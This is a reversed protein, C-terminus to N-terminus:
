KAPLRIREDLYKNPYCKKLIGDKELLMIFTNGHQITCEKLVKVAYIVQELSSLPVLKNNSYHETCMDLTKLQKRKEKLELEISQRDETIQAAADKLSTEKNQLKQVHPLVIDLEQAMKFEARIKSKLNAQVHALYPSCNAHSQLGAKKVLYANSTETGNFSTYM